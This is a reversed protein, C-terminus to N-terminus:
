AFIEDLQDQPGFPDPGFKNPGETGRVLTFVFIILCVIAFAFIAILTSLSPDWSDVTGALTAQSAEFGFIAAPLIAALLWWGSRGTDHLRRVTVALTPILLGLSTVTGLIGIESGVARDIVETVVAVVITALYFWWYEARPARGSFQAYRKLPLIMWDTPTREAIM